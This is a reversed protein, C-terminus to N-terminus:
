LIKLTWEKGIFIRKWLTLIWNPSIRVPTNLIMNISKLLLILPHYQVLWFVYWAFPKVKPFVRSMPDMRNEPSIETM